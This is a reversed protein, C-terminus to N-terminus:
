NYAEIQKDQTSVYSNIDPGSLSLRSFLSSDFYTLCYRVALGVYIAVASLLLWSGYNSDTKSPYAVVYRISEKIVLPQSYRFAILFLRPLVAELFPTKMTKFMALLLTQKTLSKAVLPNAVLYTLVVFDLPEPRRL